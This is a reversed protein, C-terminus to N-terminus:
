SVIHLFTLIHNTIWGNSNVFNKIPKFNFLTNDYKFGVVELNDFVINRAFAFLCYFGMLNTSWFIGWKPIQFYFKTKSNDYNSVIM